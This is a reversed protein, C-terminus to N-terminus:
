TWWGGPPSEVQGRRWIQSPPHTDGHMGVGGLSIQHRVRETGRKPYDYEARPPELAAGLTARRTSHHIDM